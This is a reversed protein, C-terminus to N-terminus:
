RHQLSRIREASRTRSPESHPSTSALRGVRAQAKFTTDDTWPYIPESLKRFPLRLLDPAAAGPTDAEYIEGAIKTYGVRFSTNAKVVVLDYMLPEIGFARYLQPDGPSVITQCILVDLNGFRVVASKGIRSVRGGHGVFEQRFEGDHLSRVYGVACVRVASTDVHGGIAFEASGGVGIEFARAVADPDSVVTASRAASRRELLRRAVAM